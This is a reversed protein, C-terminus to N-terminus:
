IGQMNIAHFGKRTVYLYEDETPAIIPVLIRDVAGIVNPFGAINHFGQKIDDLRQNRGDPIKVYNHMRLRLELSVSHISRSVSNLKVGHAEALVSQFSGTAFYRLAIPVLLSVPLSHSRRNPKELEQGIEACMELISFRDLRYNNVQSDDDM